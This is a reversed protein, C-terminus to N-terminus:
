SHFPPMIKVTASSVRAGIMPKLYSSSSYKARYANDIRGQLDSEEVPEFTVERTM